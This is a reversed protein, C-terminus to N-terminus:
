KNNKNTLINSTSKNNKDNCKNRIIYNTINKLQKKDKNDKLVNNKRYKRNVLTFKRDTYNKINLGSGKINKSLKIYFPTKPENDIWINNKFSKHNLKKASNITSSSNSYDGINNIKSKYSKVKQLYNSKDNNKYKEYNTIKNKTKISFGKLKNNENLRKIIINNSNNKKKCLNLSNEKKVWTLNKQLTSRNHNKKNIIKNFFKNYLEKNINQINKLGSLKQKYVNTEIMKQIDYISLYVFNSKNTNNEKILKNKNINPNNINSNNLELINGTNEINIYNINFNKIKCKIDNNISKNELTKNKIEDYIKIKKNKTKNKILKNNFNKDSIFNKIYQKTEKKTKNNIENKKNTKINRRSSNKLCNNSITKIRNILKFSNILENKNQIKIINDFENLTNNCNTKIVEESNFFSNNKEYTLIEKFRLSNKRRRNHIYNTIQKRKNKENSISIIKNQKKNKGNKLNIESNEFLRYNDNNITTFNKEYKKYLTYKNIDLKKRNKIKKEKSERTNLKKLYNIYKTGLKISDECKTENNKNNKQSFRNTLKHINNLNYNNEKKESTNTQEKIIIFLNDSYDGSFPMIIKKLDNYFYIGDKLEPPDLILIYKNNKNNTDNPIIYKKKNEIEILKIKRNLINNEINFFLSPENYQVFLVLNNIDKLMEKFENQELIECFIKIIGEKNKINNIKSIIKDKFINKIKIKYEYIFNDNELDKFIENLHEKMFNKFKFEIDKIVLSNNQVGMIKLIEKYKTENKEKILKTSLIFLESIIHFIIIPENEFDIFNNLIDIRAFKEWLEKIEKKLPFNSSTNENYVKVYSNQQNLFKNNEEQLKECKLKLCKIELEKKALLKNQNEPKIEPPENFKKTKPKSDIKITKLSIIKSLYKSLILKKNNNHFIKRPNVRSTKM